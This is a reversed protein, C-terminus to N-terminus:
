HTEAWTRGVSVEAVLPLVDRLYRTQLGPDQMVDLLLDAAAQTLAEPAELLIEDQIVHCLRVGPLESWLRPTLLALAEKLLEAGAAQIPFALAATSKLRAPAAGSFAVGPEGKTLRLDAMRRGRPSAVEWPESQRLGDRVKAIAPYARDWGACVERAEELPVERGFAQSLQERLRKPGGGYQLCFNATKGV